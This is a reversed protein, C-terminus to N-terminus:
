LDGGNIAGIERWDRGICYYKSAAEDWRYSANEDQAIYIKGTDGRNPFEHISAFPLIKTNDVVEASITGQLSGSGSLSGTLDAM